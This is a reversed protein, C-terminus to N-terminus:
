ADLSAPFPNSGCGSRGGFWVDQWQTVCRSESLSRQEAFRSWLYPDGQISSARIAVIYASQRLLGGHGLLFGLTLGVRAVDMPDDPKVLSVEGDEVPQRVLDPRGVFGVRKGLGQAVDEVVELLVGAGVLRENAFGVARPLLARGITHAHGFPFELSELLDFLGGAGARDGIRDADDDAHRRLM